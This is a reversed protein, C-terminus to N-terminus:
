FTRRIAKEGPFGAGQLDSRLKNIGGDGVPGVLVRYTGPKEPVEMSIAKFNKRRLVDVMVEAEHQSTAALQLFTGEPQASARVPERVPKPSEPPPAEQKPKEAPAPEAAAPPNERAPATAAAPPESKPATSDVVLPNVEPKRAPAVEVNAGPGSSRGVIYGMTFFIGLLVVVLFFVSLLQRNGLILEFEGEQNKQM